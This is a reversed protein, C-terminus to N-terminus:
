IAGVPSACRGSDFFRIIERGRNSSSIERLPVIKGKDNDDSTAKSKRGESPFHLLYDM